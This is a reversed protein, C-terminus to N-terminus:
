AEGESKEPSKRKTRTRARKPKAKPKEEDTPKATVEEPAPKKSTKRRPRVARKKPEEKVAVAKEEKRTEEKAEVPKIVPKTVPAETPPAEVAKELAIRKKPKKTEKKPAIKKREIIKKRWKDDLNLSTIMVKSPHLAVFVTTGDTKERTLGEVYVRYERRSVRSIKGEFGKHDGRMVRITDGSRVPLTKVGQAAILSTSLPAAFMKYRVHDPAERMIRRQKSPKSTLM